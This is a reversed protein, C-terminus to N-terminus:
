TARVEQQAEQAVAVITGDCRKDRPYFGAGGCNPCAKPLPACKQGCGGCAWFSELVLQCLMGIMYDPANRGCDPDNCKAM